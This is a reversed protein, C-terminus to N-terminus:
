TYGMGYKGEAVSCRNIGGRPKRVYNYCRRAFPHKIGFKRIFDSHHAGGRWREDIHVVFSAFAKVSPRTKPTQEAVNQKIPRPIYSLKLM